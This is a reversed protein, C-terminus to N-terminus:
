TAVLKVLLGERNVALFDAIRGGKIAEVMMQLPQVAEDPNPSIGGRGSLAAVFLIDWEVGTERSQAVLAEFSGIEEPRKDVCVKPALAGGEGRAFAAKDQETADRPLEAAAFVLLLRQPEDQESAAALVDSFHELAM